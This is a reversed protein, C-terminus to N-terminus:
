LTKFAFLYPNLCGAERAGPFVWLALLSAFHTKAPCVKTGTVTQVPQKMSSRV